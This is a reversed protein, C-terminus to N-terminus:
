KTIEKPTKCDSSVDEARPPVVDRLLTDASGVYGYTLKFKRIFTPDHIDVRTLVIRNIDDDDVMYVESGITVMKNFGARPKYTAYMNYWLTNYTNYAAFCMLLVGIVMQIRTDNTKCHVIVAYLFVVLGMMLIVTTVFDPDLHNYVWQLTNNM